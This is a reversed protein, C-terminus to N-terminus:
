QLFPTQNILSARKKLNVYGRKKKKRKRRCNKKVSRLPITHDLWFPIGIHEPANNINNGESYPFPNAGEAMVKM